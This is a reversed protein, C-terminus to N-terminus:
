DVADDDVAGTVVVVVVVEEEAVVRDTVPAFVPIICYQWRHEMWAPM